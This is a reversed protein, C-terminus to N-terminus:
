IAWYMNRLLPQTPDLWPAPQFFHTGNITHITWKGNHVAAQHLACLTIANDIDTTGHAWAKLSEDGTLM